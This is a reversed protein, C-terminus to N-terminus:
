AMANSDVYVPYVPDTVAVISDAAFLEQFNGVDCKAGDSIFIEDADIHVGYPAYDNAVIADRLFAYGQEPGSGHFTEARGMEDVAGHLAAIVAPVLPRTVDGIGLSIVRKEPHSEKYAAVKRAIDACLYNSQLKLLNANITTM